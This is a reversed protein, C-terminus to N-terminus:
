SGTLEPDQCCLVGNQDTRIAGVAACPPGIGFTYGTWVANNCGASSTSTGCAVTDMYGSVDDAYCGLPFASCSGGQGVPYASSSGAAFWHGSNAQQCDLWPLAKSGADAGTAYSPRDRIDAPWGSQMCVHWGTACADAPVTCKIGTSNGCWEQGSRPARMSQSGEWWAECGAITPYRAVDTFAERTGDACGSTARPHCNGLPDCESGAPCTGCDHGCSDRGCAKSESACRNPCVCSAAGGDVSTCKYAPPGSQCDVVHVAMEDVACVLMGTGDPLCTAPQSWSCVKGSTTAASIGSGGDPRQFSLNMAVFPSTTGAASELAVLVPLSLGSAALQALNAPLALTLGFQGPHSPTPPQPSVVRTFYNAQSPVVITSNIPNNSEYTISLQLSNDAVQGGLLLIRPVDATTASASPAQGPVVVVASVGGDGTAIVGADAVIASKWANNFDDVPGTVSGIPADAVPADPTPAALADINPATTGADPLLCSAVAGDLAGGSSLLLDKGANLEAPEACVKSTLTCLQGKTCDRDAQCQARCQLDVACILPTPCQSNYTCKAEAQLQCVSNDEIKVCRQGFDCDRTEACQAHCRGATCILPNQCDSPLTCGTGANTVPASGGGNSSSCGIVTVATVFFLGRVTENMRLSTLNM